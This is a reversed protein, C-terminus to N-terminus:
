QQAPVCGFYVLIKSVPGVPSVTTLPLFTVSVVWCRSGLGVCQVVSEQFWLGSDGTVDM